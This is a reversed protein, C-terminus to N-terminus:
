AVQGNQKARAEDAFHRLVEPGLQDALGFVMDRGPDKTSLEWGSLVAKSTGIREALGALTLGQAKRLTRLWHRM